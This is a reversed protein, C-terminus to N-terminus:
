ISGFFEKISNKFIVKNFFNLKRSNLDNLFDNSNKDDNGDIKINDFQVQNETLDLYFDLQIKKIKKRYVKKIQYQKYFNDIDKFDLNIVGVFSIKNNERILQVDNLNILVSDKWTLSSDKIIINGEEFYTKFFIDKIYNANKIKEFNINVMANLSQNNMIDTNLLDFFISNSKFLKSINLQYFNIDSILYFPKFDIKGKFNDEETKFVLSNNDINYIIKKLKNIIKFNLLGNIKENRYDLNNEINVRLKHADLYIQYNKKFPNNIVKIKIPVNFIKLNTNLEKNLEKNISFNLKKVNTLFIIDENQDRYFLKSNNFNISHNSNNSNLVKEFFNFNKKNINFETKKFYIDQIKIKDLSFFNNSNIYIKTFDIKALIEKDYVIKTNKFFFYPKPLFGYEIPGEFKVKLNYRKFIQDTFKVKILDKDYFSPILFYSLILVFITAISILIKKNINGLNDKIKKKSDLLIKITNFFSEIRLNISLLLKKFKKILTLKKSM